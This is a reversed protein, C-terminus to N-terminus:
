KDYTIIKIFRNYYDSKEPYGKDYDNDESDLDFIGSVYYGNCKGGWGFDCHVMERTETITESKTLKYGNYTNTTITRTKTKYGDINWAHSDRVKLKPMAMIIVPKGDDIMNKIRSFNYDYKKVNKFGAEEMFDIARHPFTFTGEYFYWSKCRVSIGYVLTAASIRGESTLYSKSLSSWDIKYGNFYLNTPTSLVTMIKAIALPFCGAPVKRRHGFFGFRRRRPYKDNFPSHQDWSYFTELLKKSKEGTNEWSSCSKETKTSPASSSSGDDLKNPTLLVRKKAYTLCMGLGINPDEAQTQISKNTSEVLNGDEDEEGINDTSFDGVLTDDEDEDYLSVTNPNIFIEDPYESVSFFGEGTTPYGEFIVREDEIADMATTAASKSLNGSDSIVLVEESIRDDAALIAYGSEGTFNVVYVLADSQADTQLSKNTGAGATCGISWMEATDVVSISKLGNETQESLFDYLSNLADEKSILHSTSTAPATGAENTEKLSSVDDECSALGILATLLGLALQRRKIM